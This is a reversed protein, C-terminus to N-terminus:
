FQSISPDGTEPRRSENLYFFRDLSQQASGPLFGIQYIGNDRQRFVRVKPYFSYSKSFPHAGFSDYAIVTLVGQADGSCRITRPVGPQLRPPRYTRLLRGNSFLAVRDIDSGELAFEARFSSPAPGSQNWSQSPSQQVSLDTLVIGPSFFRQIRRKAFVEASQDIFKVVPIELWRMLVGRDVGTDRLGKVSRLHASRLRNAIEEATVSKAGGAAVFDIETVLPSIAEESSGGLLGEMRMFLRISERGKKFFSIAERAVLKDLAINAPVEINRAGGHDAKVNFNFGSFFGEEAEGAKRPTKGSVPVTKDNHSKDGDSRQPAGNLARLADPALAAKADDVSKTNKAVQKPPLSKERSARPKADFLLKVTEPIFFLGVIVGVAVIGLMATRPSFGFFRSDQFNGM